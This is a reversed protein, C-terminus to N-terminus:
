FVRHCDLYTYNVLVAFWQHGALWGLRTMEQAIAFRLYRAVLRECDL